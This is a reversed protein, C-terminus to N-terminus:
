ILYSSILDYIKLNSSFRPKSNNYFHRSPILSNLFSTIRPSDSVPYETIKESNLKLIETLIALTMDTGSNSELQCTCAHLVRSEPMEQNPSNTADCCTMAGMEDDTQCSHAIDSSLNLILIPLILGVVMIKNRKSM